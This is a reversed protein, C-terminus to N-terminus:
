ALCPDLVGTYSIEGNVRKTVVGGNGDTVAVGNRDIVYYLAYGAEKDFAFCDKVEVGNLFVTAYDIGLDKINSSDIYM